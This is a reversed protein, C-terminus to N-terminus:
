GVKKRELLRKQWKILRSWLEYVHLIQHKRVEIDYSSQLLSNITTDLDSIIRSEISTNGQREAILYKLELLDYEWRSNFENQNAPPDIRLGETIDLMITDAMMENDEFAQYNPLDPGPEPSEEDINVMENIMEVNEVMEDDSYGAEKMLKRAMKTKMLKELDVPM